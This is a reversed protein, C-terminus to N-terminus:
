DKCAEHRTSWLDALEILTAVLLLVVVVKHTSKPLIAISLTGITAYQQKEKPWIDGKQRRCTTGYAKSDSQRGKV